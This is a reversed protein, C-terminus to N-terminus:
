PSHLEPATCNQPQATRPSHLETATCNVSM